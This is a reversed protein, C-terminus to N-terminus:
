IEYSFHEVVTWDAIKIVTVMLGADITINVQEAIPSSMSYNSEILKKGLDIAKIKNKEGKRESLTLTLKDLDREQRLINFQYIMNGDTAMGQPYLSIRDDLEIGALDYGLNANDVEVTIAENDPANLVTLVIPIYCPILRVTDMVIETSLNINNDAIYRLLSDATARNPKLKIEKDISINEKINAWASTTADKRRLEVEYDIFKDTAIINDHIVMGDQSVKLHIEDTNTANSLNLILWCPCHERNSLITTCSCLMLITFITIVKKM